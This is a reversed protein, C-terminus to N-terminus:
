VIILDDDEDVDRVFPDDRFTSELGPLAFRTRKTAGKEPSMDRSMQSEPRKRKIPSLSVSQATVGKSRLLLSTLSDVSTNQSSNVSNATSPRSNLDFRDVSLKLYDVGVGGDRGQSEIIRRTMQREKEAEALRKQLREERSGRHMGDYEDDLLRTASRGPAVFVKGGAGGARQPLDTLAGEHLLGNDRGGGRGGLFRRPRVSGKKPPSFLKGMSNVEARGVRAKKVGAEIHFACYHTHRKDVWSGCIKGDRKMAKCFGLDRARGIELLTDSSDNLTLSFRGTDAVRPKMIGPNMIAVVAGVPLKWFKDFGSGFLFCEIEWKLDTLTLVMYKGTGKKSNTNQGVERPESKSCITALVVWDGEIDPPEFDPGKVEKLLNPLLYITTPSLHRTLTLHPILRSSLHLGSFSDFGGTETPETSEPAVTPARSAEVFPDPGGRGGATFTTAIPDFNFGMSRSKEVVKQREAKSKEKAREEAIRESYTKRPQESPSTARTNVARYPPPRRLSVDAGRLGKDIGLLVRSPSKPMPPDANKVASSKVPSQPVQVLSGSRNRTSSTSPKRASDAVGGEAAKRRKQLQKLKLKAELAALKLKLMEEDEDEDDSNDSNAGDFPSPLSNKRLPSPSFPAEPRHKRPTLMLVDETTQPPWVIDKNSSM